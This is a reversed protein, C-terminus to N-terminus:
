LDGPTVEEQEIQNLDGRASPTHPVELVIDDIDQEQLIAEEEVVDMIEAFLKEESHAKVEEVKRELAAVKVAM